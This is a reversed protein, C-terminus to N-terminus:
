VIMKDWSWLKFYKQWGWIQPALQLKLIAFCVWVLQQFLSTHDWDWGQIAAKTQGARVIEGASNNVAMLSRPGPQIFLHPITEGQNREGIHTTTHKHRHLYLEAWGATSVARDEPDVSDGDSVTMPRSSSSYFQLRSSNLRYRKLTRWQIIAKSASTVNIVNIECSLFNM